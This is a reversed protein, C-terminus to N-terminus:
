PLKPGKKAMSVTTQIANIKVPRYQPSQVQKLWEVQIAPVTERVFDIMSKGHPADEMIAVFAARPLGLSSCLRAECGKPLQVLRIPVHNPYALSATAILQPLHFHLVSPQSPRSVFVAAIRRPPAVNEILAEPTKLPKAPLAEVGLTIGSVRGYNTLTELHRTISSLGVLVHTSIEPIPPAV